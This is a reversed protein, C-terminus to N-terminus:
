GILGYSVQLPLVRHCRTIRWCLETGVATTIILTSTPLAAAARLLLLPVWVLSLFFPIAFHWFHLVFLTIYIHLANGKVVDGPYDSAQITRHRSLGLGCNSIERRWKLAKGALYSDYLEMYNWRIAGHLEM